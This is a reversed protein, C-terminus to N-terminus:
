ERLAVQSLAVGHLDGEVVAISGPLLLLQGLPLLLPPLLICVFTRKCRPRELVLMCATSRVSDPQQPLQLM